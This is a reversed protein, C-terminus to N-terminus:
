RGYVVVTFEATTPAVAFGLTVQSSSNRTVDCEVTDYPSATRYVDVGVNKSGLSHTVAISTSSNDGVTTTYWKAYTTALMADTIGSAKVRLTDSNIEISSNDVNVSFDLATLTLGAGATYTAGAGFQVFVLPTTNLTIPANTSNVWATDANATGESVLVAAQLVEAATDADVSRTPAGSANVTYIGNEQGSSQNKLLIRDGTVLTVGDLTDGNEFSSALTGAATTAVRVKDKWSFGNIASDVYGKTAADTTATPTGLGTIKYTAMALDGTPAPLTNLANIVFDITQDGAQYTVVIGTETNGTVMAGVLTKVDADSLSLLTKVQSISLDDIVGGTIRGVLTQEAVALAVPNNDTDAKVITNADWTSAPVGAAAADTSRWTSGNWFYLINDDTDYYIQGTVPSSPSTSVNQVRANLLENKSLNISTLFVRAM